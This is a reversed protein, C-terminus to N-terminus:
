AFRFITRVTMSLNPHPSLSSDSVHDFMLDVGNSDWAVGLGTANNSFVDLELHPEFVWEECIVQPTPTTITADYAQAPLAWTKDLYVKKVDTVITGGTPATLYPTSTDSYSVGTKYIAFRVTNYLDAALVANSVAGVVTLRVEIRDIVIKCRLRYNGNQYIPTAHQPYSQLIGTNSLLDDLLTASTVTTTSTNGYNFDTLPKMGVYPVRLPRVVVNRNKRTKSM